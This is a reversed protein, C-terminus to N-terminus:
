VEFRVKEGPGKAQVQDPQPASPPTPPKTNRRPKKGEVLELASPCPNLKKDTIYPDHRGGPERLTGGVFCKRLVKYTYAM